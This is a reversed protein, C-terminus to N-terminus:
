PLVFSPRFGSRSRDGWVLYQRASVPESLGWWCVGCGSNQAVWASLVIAGTVGGIGAAAGTSALVQASGNTHALIM